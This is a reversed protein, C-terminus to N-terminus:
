RMPGCAQEVSGFVPAVTDYFNAITMDEPLNTRLTAPDLQWNLTIGFMEPTMQDKLGAFSCPCNAVADSNDSWDYAQAMQTCFAAPDDLDIMDARGVTATLIAILITSLRM